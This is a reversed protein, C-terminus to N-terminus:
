SMEIQYWGGTKRNRFLTVQQGDELTVQYHMRFVPEPEWWEAEEEVRDDISVVELVKRELSVAQPRFDEDEQVRAAMPTTPQRKTDLVKPKKPM